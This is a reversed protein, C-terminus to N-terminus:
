LELYFDGDENVEFGLSRATGDYHTQLRENLKHNFDEKPTHHYYKNRKAPRVRVQKSDSERAWDILYSLLLQQWRIKQLHEKNGKAGQIQSVFIDGNDKINFGITALATGTNLIFAFDDDFYIKEYPPDGWGHSCDWYERTTACVSYIPLDSGNRSFTRVYSPDIQTVQRSYFPEFLYIRPDLPIGKMSGLLPDDFPNRSKSIM